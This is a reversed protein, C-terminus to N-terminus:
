HLPGAPETQKPTPPTDKAGRTQGSTPHILPQGLEAQSGPTQQSSLDTCDTQRSDSLCWAPKRDGRTLIHGRAGERFGPEPRGKPSGTLYLGQGTAGKDTQRLGRKGSGSPERLEDATWGCSTQPNLRQAPTSPVATEAQWPKFFTAVPRSPKPQNSLYGGEGGAGRWSMNRAELGKSRHLGRGAIGKVGRETQSSALLRESIGRERWLGVHGENGIGNSLVWPAPAWRQREQSPIPEIAPTM